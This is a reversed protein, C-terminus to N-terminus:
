GTAEEEARSRGWALDKTDNGINHLEEATFYSVRLAEQIALRAQAPSLGLLAYHIEESAAYAEGMKSM